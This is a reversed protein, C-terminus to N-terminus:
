EPQAPSASKALRREVEQRWGAVVTLPLLQPTVDREGILVGNPLADYTYFPTSFDAFRMPPGATIASASTEVIVRELRLGNAYYISKGDFSWAAGHGGDTSIRVPDLSHDFPAVYIESRGSTDSNYAVWRGDPSTHANGENAPTQLWVDAAGDSRTILIDSRTPGQREFLVRGDRLADSPAELGGARTLPKEAGGAAPKSFLRPPAGAMSANFILTREDYSWGPSHVDREGFTVRSVGNRKLDAIWLNGIGTREDIAILALRNGRPSVRVDHWTGPPVIDFPQRVGREDVRTLKMVRSASAYVVTDGGASHQSVGLPKYFAVGDGIVVPKGVLALKAEDFRQAYLTGERVFTVYPPAYSFGGTSPLLKRPESGDLHGIFVDSDGGGQGTNFFFHSTSGIPSVATMGIAGDSVKRISRPIGGSSPVGVINPDILTAVVITGDAMWGGSHYASPTPGLEAVTQLGREEDLATMQLKTGLFFALSRSDPSWFPANAGSTGAIIRSTGRRFDYVRIERNREEGAIFAVANGDPSVAMSKSYSPLSFSM